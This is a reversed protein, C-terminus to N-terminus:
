DEDIRVYHLLAIFSGYFGIVIGVYWWSSHGTWAMIISIVFVLVFFILIYPQKIISM